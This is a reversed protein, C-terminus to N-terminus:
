DGARDMSQWSHTSSRVLPLPTHVVGRGGTPAQGQSPPPVALLRSAAEGVISTYTPYAFAVSALTGVDVGAATLAGPARKAAQVEDIVQRVRQVTKALSVPPGTARDWVRRCRHDPPAVSLRPSCGPPCVEPPVCTGGTHKAEVVAVREGLEAARLRAATGGPGAGIVVVDYRDQTRTQVIKDHGVTSWVLAGPM